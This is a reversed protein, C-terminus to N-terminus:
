RDRFVQPRTGLHSVSLALNLAATRRMSSLRCTLTNTDPEDDAKSDRSIAVEKRPLAQYTNICGNANSSANCCASM